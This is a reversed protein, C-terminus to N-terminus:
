RKRRWGCCIMCLAGSLALLLSTPEPIVALADIDEGLVAYEHFEGILNTIYIASPNLGGSEDTLQTDPDDSDVSFIGVLIDEGIGAPQNFIGDYTEPSIAIFEFADVDPDLKIQQNAPDPHDPLGLNGAQDFAMALNVTGDNRTVYIDGPDLNMDAEHDPSWYRASYISDPDHIEPEKDPHLDLADVDDDYNTEWGAAASANPELGLNTELAWAVTPGPPGMLPTVFIEEDHEPGTTTPVSGLAPICWGSPGDDEYSCYAYDPEFYVGTSRQIFEDRQWGLHQLAIPQMPGILEDGGGLSIQDEADLDFYKGYQSELDADDVYTRSNFVDAPPPSNATTPPFPHGIWGGVPADADKYLSVQNNPDLTLGEGIPMPMTPYTNYQKKVLQIDGAYWLPGRNNFMGPVLPIPDSFEWDSGIDLSYLAVTQAPAQPIWALTVVVAVALIPLLKGLKM